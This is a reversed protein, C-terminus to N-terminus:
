KRQTEAIEKKKCIRLWREVLFLAFTDQHVCLFVMGFQKDSSVVHLKNAAPPSCAVHM